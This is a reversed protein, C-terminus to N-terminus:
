SYLVQPKYRSADQMEVSEVPYFSEATALITISENLSVGLILNDTYKVCYNQCVYAIKPTINLEEFIKDRYEITELMERTLKQSYSEPPSFAQFVMVFLVILCFWFIIAEKNIKAIQM